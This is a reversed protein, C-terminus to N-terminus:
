HDFVGEPGHLSAPLCGTGGILSIAVIVWRNGRNLEATREQTLLEGTGALTLLVVHFGPNRRQVYFPEVYNSIGSLLNGRAALSSLPQGPHVLYQERCGRPFCVADLSDATKRYSTWKPAADNASNNSWEILPSDEVNL